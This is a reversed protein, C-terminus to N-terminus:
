VDVKVYDELLNDLRIEHYKNNNDLLLVRDDKYNKIQYYIIPEQTESFVFDYLNKKRIKKGIDFGLQNFEKLAKDKIYTLKSIQYFIILLIPPLLVCIAALIFNFLFISLVQIVLIFLLIPDEYKSM